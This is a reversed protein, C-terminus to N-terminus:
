GEDIRITAARRREEETLVWEVGGAELEQEDLGLVMVLQAVRVFKERLFYWKGQSVHSIIGAVDRELQIAGLENVRGTMGWVRRELQISLQETTVSLVRSYNRETLIKRIPQMLADWGYAFRLRVLDAQQQSASEEAEETGGHGQTMYTADKFADHVLPRLRAKIVQNYIVQTGDNLLERVRQEFSSSMGQLTAVVQVHDDGFPVVSVVIGDGCSKVVTLVIRGIYETAVDLNNLLILFGNVKDEPPPPAPGNGSPVGPARPYTEDRMKRQIMGVLDSELVRRVNGIVNRILHAHGTSVTRELVANLVYMVDDIASTILPSTPSPEPPLHYLSPPEDIQFAKEVSRRFFFTALSEFAPALRTNMKMYLKSDLLIPPINLQTAAIGKTRAPSSSTLEDISATGNPKALSATSSKATPSTTIEPLEQQSWWKVALFKCYLSWRSLMVGTENMLTDVDQVNIGSTDAVSPSVPSMTRIGILNSNPMFSQVLFSFAYSKIESLKRNVNRDDFYTDVIIGGQTDTELQIREIVRQMKGRGYYREVIPTHQDVITAINEFLRSIVMGFFLPGEVKINMMQRSQAAIISCVFKAYVDLGEKEKGILPFLKFFRTIKEMDKAKAASEFERLFLAGFSETANELAVAPSEPNEETPVMAEAFRGRVLETPLKSARHIHQAVAEWDRVQTADYIGTICSRLEQTQAVYELAAQVRSQEKDLQRVKQSIRLAVFGADALMTTVERAARQPANLSAGLIDLRQLAFSLPPLRTDQVDRLHASVAASETRISSMLSLLEEYTGCQMIDSPPDDAMTHSTSLENPPGRQSSRAAALEPPKYPERRSSVVVM